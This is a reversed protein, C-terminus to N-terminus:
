VGGGTLWVEAVSLTNTDGSTAKQGTITLTTAVNTEIATLALAGSANGYVSANPYGGVQSNTAGRNRMFLDRVDMASTFNQSYLNNGDLKLKYTKNGAGVMQLISRVVLADNPGLPPIQCTYLTLEATDAANSVDTYQRGILQPTSPWVWSSGTWVKYPDLGAGLGYNTVYGRQGVFAGTSATIVALTGRKDAVRLITGDLAQLNGSPNQMVVQYGGAPVSPTQTSMELLAPAGGIWAFLHSREPLSRQINQVSSFM